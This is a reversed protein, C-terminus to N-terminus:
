VPGDEWFSAHKACLCHEFHCSTHHSRPDQSLVLLSGRGGSFTAHCVKPSISLWNDQGKTSHRLRGPLM